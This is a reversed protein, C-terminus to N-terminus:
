RDGPSSLQVRLEVFQFGQATALCVLLVQSLEVVFRFFQQAAVETWRVRSKLSVFIGRQRFGLGEDIQRFLCLLLRSLIQRFFGELLTPLDELADQRFELVHFSLLVLRERAFVMFIRGQSLRSFLLRFRAASTVARDAVHPRGVYLLSTM